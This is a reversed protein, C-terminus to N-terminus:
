VGSRCPILTLYRYSSGSLDESVFKTLVKEYYAKKLKKMALYKSFEGTRGKLSINLRKMKDVEDGLQEKLWSHQM